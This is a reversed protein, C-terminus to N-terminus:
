PSYEFPKTSIYVINNRDKKIYIPIPSYFITPVNAPYFGTKKEQESLQNRKVKLFIFFGNTFTYEKWFDTIGIENASIIDLFNITEFKDCKTKSLCEFLNNKGEKFEKCLCICAKDKKCNDPRNFSSKLTLKGYKPEKGEFEIKQSDKTFFLIANDEDLYLNHPQPSDYEINEILNVLNNYSDSAKSGFVAPYIKKTVCSILSLILIGIIILRILSEFPILTAKKKLM